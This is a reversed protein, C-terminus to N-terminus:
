PEPKTDKTDQRPLMKDEDLLAAAERTLIRARVWDPFDGVRFPGRTGFPRGVKPDPMKEALIAQAQKLAVRAEGILGSKDAGRALALRYKAMALVALVATDRNLTDAEPAIQSLWNVVAAYHGSRYEALGKTLLFWGNYGHNETGTVARDALKFVPGLDGVAEPALLCAKATRDAIEPDDTNGFRQLMERCHQRYGEVDGMQLRFVISDTWRWHNSPDFKVLRGFDAMAVEWQGDRVHAWAREEWQKVNGPELEGQEVNVQLQRSGKSSQLVQILSRHDDPRDEIKSERGEIRPPLVPPGHWDLGLQALEERILRLDWVRLGNKATVVLKSGDPALAAAGIGQEPDEFRALQRGTALEVLRYIGNPLGMVVVDATADRPTGPGLLPGPAWTGVEYVRGGDVDTVLWRGDPTFRCHSSKGQRAKWVVEKTAADCVDVGFNAMGFAVWRGDPSVSCRWMALNPNVCRPTPSNPHLIWGGGEEGYGLWFCKAIVQGDLNAAIPYVGPKLPLREPPGVILGDGNARDQRVPWRFSGEFGSTLLRGTGDFCVSSNRWATIPLHALQRGAELDFLAVGDGLGIAVLRGGPHIAPCLEQWTEGSGKPLLARYERADAVSWLGIRQDRDGVRAAALRRGTADFCIMGGALSNSPTKFLLRDSVADFLAVSGGWLARSIFRDGTPNYAIAPCGLDPGEIPPGTLRLAPSKPDFAYQQILGHEGQPVTLTRGDPSWAGTGNGGSWPVSPTSIVKGTRLDAVQVERKLYSFIAVFPERPHLIPKGPFTKGPGLQYVPEGTNTNRVTISGNQHVFAVLRGDPRFSWGEGNEIASERCRLV